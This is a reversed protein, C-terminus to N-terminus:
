VTANERPVQLKGIEQMLTEELGVEPKM